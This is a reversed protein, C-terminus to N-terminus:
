EGKAGNATAKDIAAQFRVVEPDPPAQPVRSAIEQAIAEVRARAEAAHALQERENAQALELLRALSPLGYDKLNEM